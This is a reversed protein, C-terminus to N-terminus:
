PQQKIIEIAKSVALEMCEYRTEAYEEHEEQFYTIAMSKHDLLYEFKQVENDWLISVILNHKSELWDFVQQWLPALVLPLKMEVMESQLQLFGLDDYVRFCGMNFGLEKLMLSMEHTVFQQETKDKDM